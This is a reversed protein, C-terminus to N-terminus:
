PFISGLAAHFEATQKVVISRTVPNYVITATGGNARWSQPEITTEILDILMAAEFRNRVLDAVSYVKIIMLDKARDPTTVQIMEDKIVYTLGLDRLVMKLVTRVTVSKVKLTIPTDYKVGAADLAM